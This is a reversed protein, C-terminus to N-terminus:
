SGCRCSPRHGRSNRPSFRIAGRSVLCPSGENRVARTSNWRQYNRRRFRHPVSAEKVAQADRDPQVRDLRLVSWTHEPTIHCLHDHPPWQNTLPILAASEIPFEVLRIRRRVVRRGFCRSCGLFCDIEAGLRFLSRESPRHCARSAAPCNARLAETHRVSARLTKTPASRVRDELRRRSEVSFSAFFCLHETGKNTSSLM